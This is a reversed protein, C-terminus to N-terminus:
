APSPAARGNGHGGWGGARAGWATCRALSDLVPDAHTPTLACVHARHQVCCTGMHIAGAHRAQWVCVRDSVRGTAGDTTGRECYAPVLTGAPQEGDHPRAIRARPGRDADQCVLSSCAGRSGGPGFGQYLVLLLWETDFFWGFLSAGDQGLVTSGEMGASAAFSVVASTFTVPFAYLFLPMWERMVRGVALYVVIAVAGLFAVADGEITVPTDSAQADLVM